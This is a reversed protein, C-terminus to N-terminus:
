EADSIDEMLEALALLEAARNCVQRFFHAPERPEIELYLEWPQVANEVIRQRLVFFSFQTQIFMCCFYDDPDDIPPQFSEVRVIDLRAGGRLLAYYGSGYAEFHTVEDDRTRWAKVLEGIEVMREDGNM